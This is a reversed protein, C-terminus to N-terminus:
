SNLSIYYNKVLETSDTDAYVRVVDLGATRIVKIYGENELSHLISMLSIMDLNFVKGLNNEGNYINSIQIERKGKANDKIIHMAIEVPIVNISPIVKRFTKEKKNAVAILGLEGLPSDINSEPQQKEPSLISRSIYTNILCNFDDDLSREAVELGNVRLYKNLADVFDYKSFEKQNFINYFFYWSTALERNQALKYHLLCLTGLEEVYPDYKRVIDGLETFHQTRKGTKSEETLGTAQMWYRLSKVMNNGMGLVDSPRYVKDIFVDPNKNVYKLGKNIWGKRIFFTEHARIKM